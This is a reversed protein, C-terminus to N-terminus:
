KAKFKERNEKILGMVREMNEALDPNISKVYEFHKKDEEELAEWNVSKNWKEFPVDHEIIKYAIVTRQPFDRSGSSNNCKFYGDGHENDILVSYGEEGVVYVGQRHEGIYPTQWQEKQRPNLVEYIVVAYKVPIDGNWFGDKLNKIEQNM